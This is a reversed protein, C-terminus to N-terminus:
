KPQPDDPILDLNTEEQCCWCKGPTYSRISCVPCWYSISYRTGDKHVWMATKHIPGIRFRDPAVYEGSVEFDADLLRKDKTVGITDKDGELHILNGEAVQLAPGGDPGAVLRGRLEAGEAALGVLLGILVAFLVKQGMEEIKGRPCDSSRAAVGSDEDGPQAEPAQQRPAQGRSAPQYRM